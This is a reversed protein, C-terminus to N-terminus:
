FASLIGDIGHVGGGEILVQNGVTSPLFFDLLNQVNTLIDGRSVYATTKNMYEIAAGTSDPNLSAITDRHVGAPNFAVAKDVYGISVAATAIWGGLSHGTAVIVANSGLANRISGLQTSLQAYQEGGNGVAQDFNSRWDLLDNTGAFAVIYEGTDKNKYM